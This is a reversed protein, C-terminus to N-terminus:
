ITIEAKEKTANAVFKGDEVDVTYTGKSKGSVIQKVFMRKIEQDIVKQIERAGYQSSTGMEVIKNIAADSYKVAIGLTKMKATLKGLEKNVIMKSVDTNLPNFVITASIRGRLEPAMIEAIAKM